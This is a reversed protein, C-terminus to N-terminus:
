VTTLRQYVMALLILGAGCLLIPGGFSPLPEAPDALAMRDVMQTAGWLGLVLGALALAGTVIVPHAAVWASAWNGLEEATELELAAVLVVVTGVFGVALGLGILWGLVGTAPRGVLRLTENTILSAGLLTAPIWLM